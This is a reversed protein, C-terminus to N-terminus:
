KVMATGVARGIGQMIEIARLITESWDIGQEIVYKRVANIKKSKVNEIFSDDLTKLTFVGDDM